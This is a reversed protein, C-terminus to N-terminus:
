HTSSMGKLTGQFFVKIKKPKPPGNHNKIPPSLENSRVSSRSDGRSAMNQLNSFNPLNPNLTNTQTPNNQNHGPNPLNQHNASHQGPHYITATANETGLGTGTSKLALAAEAACNKM